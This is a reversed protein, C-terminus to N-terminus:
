IVVNVDLKSWSSENRPNVVTVFVEVCGFLNKVRVLDAKNDVSVGSALSLTTQVKTVSYSLALKVSLGVLVVFELNSAVCELFPVHVFSSLVSALLELVHANHISCVELVNVKGAHSALLVM